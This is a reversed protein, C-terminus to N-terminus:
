CNDNGYQNKSTLKKKNILFHCTTIGNSKIYSEIDVVGFMHYAKQNNRQKFSIVKKNILGIKLCKTGRNLNYEIFCKWNQCVVRLCMLQDLSFNSTNFLTWLCDAPLQNIQLMENQFNM